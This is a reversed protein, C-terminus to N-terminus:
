VWNLYMQRSINKTENAYPLSPALMNNGTNDALGTQRASGSQSKWLQAM